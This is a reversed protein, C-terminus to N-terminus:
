KNAGFQYFLGISIVSHRMRPNDSGSTSSENDLVNSFGHNYRAGIGLGMRSVYGLGAGGSFEFNEFNKENEINEDGPGDQRADLLFSIQPGIEGYFGSNGRFQLMMPVSLYRLDQEYKMNSSVGLVNTTVNLKSGQGNFLVEPQFAMGGTGLPINVFFGGGFSTKLNTSIDSGSPMDSPRLKSLNVGAKVGFRTTPAPTNDNQAFLATSTILVLALSSIKKM